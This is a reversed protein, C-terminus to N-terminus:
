AYIDSFYIQQRRSGIGQPNCDGGVGSNDSCSCSCGMPLLGILLLPAICLVLWKKRM